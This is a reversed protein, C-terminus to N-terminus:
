RTPLEGLVYRSCRRRRSQSYNDGDEDNEADKDTALDEGRLEALLQEACIREPPHVGTMPISCPYSKLPWDSAGYGIAMHPLQMPKVWPTYWDQLLRQVARIHIQRAWLAGNQITITGYCDCLPDPFPQPLLQCAVIM